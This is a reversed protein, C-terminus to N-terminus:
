ELETNELILSLVIQMFYHDGPIVIENGEEDLGTVDDGAVNALVVISTGDSLRFMFSSSHGHQGDGLHGALNPHISQFGAFSDGTSVGEDDYIPTSQSFMDVFTNPGIYDPDFVIAQSYRLLDCADSFILGGAATSFANTNEYQDTWTHPTGDAWFGPTLNAPPTTGPGQFTTHTLGLPGIIMEQTLENIPTMTRDEMIQGAILPGYNSYHFQTGPAVYFPGGDGLLYDMMEDYTFIRNLETVADGEFDPTDKWHRLGAYHMSLQRLTADPMPPSDIYDNVPADMDIGNTQDEALHWLLTWRFNKQISGIDFVADATMPASHAPDVFGFAQVQYGFTPSAIGVVIGSANTARAPEGWSGAFAAAIDAALQPDSFNQQCTPPPDDPGTDPEPRGTDPGGTDPNGTDSDGTDVGADPSAAPEEDPPECGALAILVILAFRGRM